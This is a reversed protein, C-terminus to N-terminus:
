TSIQLLIKKHGSSFPLKKVEEQAVWRYGPVDIMADVIVHYPMLTAKYRTFSHRVVEMECVVKGRIGFAKSIAKLCAEASFGLQKLAFYPFEYLDAMVRGAEGKRLLLHGRCEVVAVGRYLEQTTEKKTKVPLEEAKGLRYARCGTKLPCETCQPKKGCLTAGLEILAESVVWSENEPLLELTHAEIQKLTGSKGIDSEVCFFRSIVRVVNGDVAAARQKFAFSRIAGVTYSGLGKIKRLEEADSPVRGGFTEVVYKAGAHLNRARSYYGLGEWEKLVDDISAAALAEITPFREMWRLFYPIVVAVRTQQLMIESVWVAYPSPNERWPLSRQNETFWAALSKIVKM